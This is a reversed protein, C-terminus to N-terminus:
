TTRWFRPSVLVIIAFVELRGLAMLTIMILKSTNTFWGYNEIAGVRELGPGINCITAISATAATTFTIGQHEELLMLAVAGVIFLILFGLVYALTSQRLENPISSGSIKLSRVVQPRFAREIESLMVRIAILIRIVKIGGGTSGASGGVFMLGILVCKALFPWHNFDTTCFGTTTQMSVTTFAAQEIEVGMSIPLQQGDTLQITQGHIAFAVIAFGIFLITLYLRLEADKWIMNFRGRILHYYLGFNVGALIMFLTIILNISSTNYAGISANKTSFGGTALTGFTHCVSDFWDMGAVRLAIVEAVTLGVYLMWLVRATEAIHPHVGEPRPGPSEIQFLKKGGVGLTPLVAVFLVVIGLGGLWHTLSRWLLISRPLSEIDKLITAGTTTLGSMAEFYCNIYSAFEIKSAANNHALHAWIYYPLGCIGAGVFWSIAVLLLAERRGLTLSAGRSLLWWIAAGFVISGGGCISMAICSQREDLYGQGLWQYLSWLAVTLLFAGLVVILMGMQSFAYRYNLLDM